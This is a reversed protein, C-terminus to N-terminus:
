LLLFHHPCLNKVQELKMSKLANGREANEPKECNLIENLRM